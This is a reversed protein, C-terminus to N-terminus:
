TTSTMDSQTWIGYYLTTILLQIFMLFVGFICLIGKKDDLMPMSKLTVQHKIYYDSSVGFLLMENPDEMYDDIM